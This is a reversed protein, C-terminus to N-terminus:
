GAINGFLSLKISLYEESDAHYTIIAIHNM